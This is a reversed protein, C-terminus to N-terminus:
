LRAIGPLDLRWSPLDPRKCIMAPRHATNKGPGAGRSRGSEGTCGGARVRYLRFICAATGPRHSGARTSTGSCCARGSTGASPQLCATRGLHCCACQGRCKGTQAPHALPAGPAHTQPLSGYPPWGCSHTGLRQGRAVACSQVAAPRRLYQWLLLGALLLLTGLIGQPSLLWPLALLSSWCGLRVRRQIGSPCLPIQVPALWRNDATSPLPHPHPEM